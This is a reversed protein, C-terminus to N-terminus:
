NGLDFTPNSFPSISVANIDLNIQHTVYKFEDKFAKDQFSCTSVLTSPTRHVCRFSLSQILTLLSHVSVYIIHQSITDHPLVPILYFVISIVVIRGTAESYDVTVKLHPLPVSAHIHNLTRHNLMSHSSSKEKTMETHHKGVSPEYGECYQSKM